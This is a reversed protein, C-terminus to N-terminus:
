SSRRKFLLRDAHDTVILRIEVKNRPTLSRRYASTSFATVRPFYLQPTTFPFSLSSRKHRITLFRVRVQVQVQVQAQVRVRMRSRAYRANVVARHEPIADGEKREIAELPLVRVRVVLQPPFFDPATSSFAFSDIKVTETAADHKM